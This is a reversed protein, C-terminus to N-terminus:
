DRAVAAVGPNTPRRVPADGQGAHRDVRGLTAAGAGDEGAVLETSSQPVCPYGHAPCSGLSVKHDTHGGTNQGRGQLLMREPDTLSRRGLLIAANKMWRQRGKRALEASPPWELVRANFPPACSRM